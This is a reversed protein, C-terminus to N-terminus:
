ILRAQVHGQPGWTGLLPTVKHMGAYHSTTEVSTDQGVSFGLAEWADPLAAIM